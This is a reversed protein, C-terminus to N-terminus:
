VTTMGGKHTSHPQIGASSYHIIWTSNRLKHTDRHALTHKPSFLPQLELVTQTQSTQQEALSQTFLRSTRAAVTSLGSNFGAEEEIPSTEPPLLLPMETGRADQQIASHSQPVAHNFVACKPWVLVGATRLANEVVCDKGFMKNNLRPKRQTDEPPAYIQKTIQTYLLFNKM